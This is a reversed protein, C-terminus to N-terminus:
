PEGPLHKNAMKRRKGNEYGKEKAKTTEKEILIALANRAALKQMMKKSSESGSRGPCWM